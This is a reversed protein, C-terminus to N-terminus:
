LVWVRTFWPRSLVDLGLMEHDCAGHALARSQSVKFLLDSSATASGLFIITHQATSCVSAMQAVQQNREELDSQNICVGNAWIKVERAPDRIHRLTFELSATVELEEEEVWIIVCDNVDGWFM